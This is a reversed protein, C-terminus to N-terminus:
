TCFKESNFNTSNLCVMLKAKFQSTSKIFRLLSFGFIDRVSKNSYFKDNLNSDIQKLFHFLGIVLGREVSRWANSWLNNSRWSPQSQNSRYNAHNWFNQCGQNQGNQQPQQQQFKKPQYAANSTVAEIRDEEEEAQVAHTRSTSKAGEKSRAKITALRVATDLDLTPMQQLNIVGWLDVPIAAWNHNLLYFQGLNEDRAGYHERM